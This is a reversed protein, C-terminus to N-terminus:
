VDETENKKKCLFHSLIFLIGVVVFPVTVMLIIGLSMLVSHNSSFNHQYIIPSLICGIQTFLIGGLLEKKWSLILLALLIFSPLLHIFFGSLQQWLTLAPDFSDLAFISIFLIALICIIRPAWHLIKSRNITM